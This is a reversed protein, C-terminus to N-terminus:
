TDRPQLYTSTAPIAIGLLIILALIACVAGDTTNEHFQAAQHGGPKRHKVIAYTMFGFVGVFIVVCIWLILTHLDYIDQALLGNPEQLNYRATAALLTAPAATLLAGALGRGISQKKWGSIHKMASGAL